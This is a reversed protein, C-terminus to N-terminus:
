FIAYIAPLVAGGGVLAMLLSFIVLVFFIPLLWWKKNKLILNLVQKLINLITKLNEFYSSM